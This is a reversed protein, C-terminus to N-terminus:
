KIRCIFNAMFTQYNKHKSKNLPLWVRDTKKGGLNGNFGTENRLGIVNSHVLAKTQELPKPKLSFAFPLYGSIKWVPARIKVTNGHNVIFHHM